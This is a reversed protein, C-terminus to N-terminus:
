ALTYICIYLTPYMYRLMGPTANIENEEDPALLDRRGTKLSGRRRYGTGDEMSGAM